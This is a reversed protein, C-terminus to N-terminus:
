SEGGAGLADRLAARSTIGLKPFVQYLHAAVTRPSLFLRAAIEKNTHGAAALHAIQRQQPTLAGLGSDATTSVTIGTARLERDARATWPTAGLGRFIEAAEALHRRADAIRKLRRLHSGHGLQVRALDFPHQGTEPALIVAELASEASEESTGPATLAEGALVILRLRPSLSDLHHGRAAALHARAEADRGTHVAAEVLDHFVALAHPAYPAFTGAPSVASANRFATDFEGRGLATLSRVHSAYSNVIGARRPAAWADMDRATDAAAEFDGRAAALLAGTLRGTWSLLAYGHVSCLELGEGSLQRAEDWRGTDFADQALLFLAEIASTVAGGERGHRVVRQLAERCAPLRDLPAAATATRVIRAPSIEYGLGTVATDALALTEPTHRALDSLTRAPLTLEAPAPPPLDDLARHLPPWLEARGGASCIMTLTHLAEVRVQGGDTDHPPTPRERLATTLLRHATDVDGDGHLLRYATAVTAVLPEDPGPHASRAREILGPADRLDGTVLSGLYAAEALRGSRVRGPPSLQAARLLKAVAGTYDGRRLNRHAVDDLLAAVQEDPKETAEALHWAHREPQCHAFRAALVTHARRRQDSTSLEVVAAQILPHRFTLRGASEDVRVLGAHEAPALGEGGRDAAVARVVRLDAQGDLASLVLLEYASDPLERVRSSFVRQLRDTLPLATPLTGATTLDGLPLPLELLALPNGLAADLLRRRVRPAMEPHRGALLEAAAREPLPAVQVTPPNGQDFFDAEGTRCAALLAVPMGTLRRAVMGLVLASARDLWQPDDVVLLLPREGAARRLLELVANAALLRTPAPGTGLGLAVKLAGALQPKVADLQDLEPLCPQLLQHLAAYSIDAEFQAGTARLVGAGAGTALAAAQDLLATKGVGPDGTFLLTDGAGSAIRGVLTELRRIEPERGILTGPGPGPGDM